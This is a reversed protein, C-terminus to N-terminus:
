NYGTTWFASRKGLLWEIVASPIQLNYIGCFQIFPSQHAQWLLPRKECEYYHWRELPSLLPLDLINLILEILGKMRWANNLDVPRTSKASFFSLCPGLVSWDNNVLWTSARKPTQYPPWLPEDAATTSISISDGGRLVAELLCFLTNKDTTM